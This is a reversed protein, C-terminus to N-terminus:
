LINMTNTTGHAVLNQRLSANIRLGLHVVEGIILNITETLYNVPSILNFTLKSFLTIKVYFAKNLNATIPTVPM